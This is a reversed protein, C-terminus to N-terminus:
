ADRPPLTLTVNCWEVVRERVRAIATVVAPGQASGSTADRRITDLDDGLAQYDAPDLLPWDGLSKKIVDLLSEFEADWNVGGNISLEHSVRAFARLVHGQSARPPGDRPIFHKWLAEFSRTTM